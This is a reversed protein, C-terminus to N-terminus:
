PLAGALGAGDDEPPAGPGAPIHPAPDVLDVPPEGSTDELERGHTDPFLVAIM